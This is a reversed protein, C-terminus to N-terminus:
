YEGTGREEVLAGWKTSSCDSGPERASGSTSATSARSAKTAPPTRRRWRAGTGSRSRERPRALPLGSFASASRLTFNRGCATCTLRPRGHGDHGDRTVVFQQCHPCSPMDASAVLVRCRRLSMRTRAATAVTLRLEISTTPLDDNPRGSDDAFGDEVELSHPPDVAIVRWWGHYKEGNPGTMYYAVRGGPTLDHDVVTAPYTPPGWWRELQRPDAWVHWVRAAPADFESVITLTLAVPDRDVVLVTM